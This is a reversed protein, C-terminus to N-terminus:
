RVAVPVCVSIYCKHPSNFEGTASRSLLPKVATNHLGVQHAHVRMGGVLLVADSVASVEESGTGSATQYNPSSGSWGGPTQQTVM